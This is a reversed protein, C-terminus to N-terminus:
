PTENVPSNDAADGVETQAEAEGRDDRRADAPTGDDDRAAARARRRRRLAFILAPPSELPASQGAVTARLALVGGLGLLSGARGLWDVATTGYHLTVHHADPVVVM